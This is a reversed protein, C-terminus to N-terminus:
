DVLRESLAVRVASARDRVGLKKYIRRVHTKVTEPSLYLRQGIDVNTHGGTLLTLVELERKTLRPRSRVTVEDVPVASPIAMGSPTAVKRIAALLERGASTKSVFQLAGAEICAKAVRPDDSASFFIVRASPEIARIRRTAQAGTCRPLWYDTVVLDPRHREFQDVLEPGDAATAVVAVDPAAGLRRLVAELMLPHGDAVVVTTPRRAVGADM